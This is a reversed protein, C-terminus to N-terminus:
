KETVARRAERSTSQQLLQVQRKWATERGVAKLQEQKFAPSEYKIRLEDREKQLATKEAQLATLKAQSVRETGQSKMESARWRAEDSQWQSQKALVAATSTVSFAKLIKNYDSRYSQMGWLSLIAVIVALAAVPQSTCWDVVPQLAEPVGAPGGHRKRPKRDKFEGNDDSNTRPIGFSSTSFYGGGDNSTPLGGGGPRKMGRLM